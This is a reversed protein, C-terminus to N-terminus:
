LSNRSINWKTLIKKVGFHYKEESTRKFLEKIQISAENKDGKMFFIDILKLRAYHLGPHIELAQKYLNLSQDYYKNDFLLDGLQARAEGLDPFATIRRELESYRLQFLVARAIKYILFIAALATIVNYPFLTVPDLNIGWFKLGELM